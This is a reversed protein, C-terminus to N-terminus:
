TPRGGVHADWLERARQRDPKGQSIRPLPDESLLVRRPARHAGLLETLSTQVGREDEPGRLTPGHVILGIDEFNDPLQLRLAVAELVDELAAAADEIENLYVLFGGRNVALKTRGVIRYDGDPEREAIDGTRLWGDVVADSWADPNRHYGDALTPGALEIEGRGGTELVVSGDPARLRATGLGPRGVGPRGFGDAGISGFFATFGVETLGYYNLLPTGFRSQFEAQLAEALPAGGTACLPLPGRGPVEAARILLRVLPPVLYTFEAGADQARCWFDRATGLDLAPLTVTRAGMVAAWFWHVGIVGLGSPRMVCAVTRPLRGNTRALEAAGAQYADLLGTHTLRVGKPDDTTGSTYSVIAPVQPEPLANPDAARVKFEAGGTQAVARVGAHALVRDRLWDGWQPDIPVVGAGLSWAGLFSALCHPSPSCEVAALTGTEVDAAAMADAHAAALDILQSWSLTETRHGADTSLATGRPNSRARDLYVDYLTHM